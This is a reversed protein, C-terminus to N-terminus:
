FYNNIEDFLDKYQNAIVSPHWIRNARKKANESMELLRNKQLCSIINRAMSEYSYPSALLGTVNDEVVDKLGTCNFGLVPTGSAQSELGTNPLNDVRSPLLFINSASYLLNLKSNDQINGFNTVKFPLNNKFLPNLVGFSILEIKKLYKVPAIEKLKHLTKVLLDEGKRPEITPMAGFLLYIKEKDLSLAQRAKEKNIDQWEEPNIPYPIVFTKSNKFILSENACNAMWNSPCVLTFNSKWNKQKRLWTFRNINTFRTLFNPMNTKYGNRYSPNNGKSYSYHEAGSFSWQDHLTLIFKCDIKAIQEISFTSSAIWHINLLYPKLNYDKKFNKYLDSDPWATSLHKKKAQKNYRLSFIKRRFRNNFNFFERSISKRPTYVSEDNSYKNKVLLRSDYNLYSQYNFLCKHIRYAARSAGGIIDSESINLILKKQNAM